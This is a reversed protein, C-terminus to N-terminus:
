ALFRMNHEIFPRVRKHLEVNQQVSGLLLEYLERAGAKNGAQQWALAKGFAWYFVSSLDSGFRERLEEKTVPHSETLPSGAFESTAQFLYCLGLIALVSHWEKRM